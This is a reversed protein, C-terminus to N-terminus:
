RGCQAQLSELVLPLPVPEIDKGRAIQNVLGDGHILLVALGAIQPRGVQVPPRIAAVVQQEAELGAPDVDM